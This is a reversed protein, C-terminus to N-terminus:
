CGFCDDDDTSAFNAFVRSRIRDADGLNYLGGGVGEGGAKGGRAANRFVLSRALELEGSEDNFIGGGLGDGGEGGVASNGFVLAREVDVSIPGGFISGRSAVAIGGGLGDDGDGGVAWNHAVISRSLQGTVPGVLGFFYVGGGVGPGSDGGVARNHTILAGSVDASGQYVLIGGGVAANPAHAPPVPIDELSSNENGGVARNTTVKTQEIVVSASRLGALATVTGSTVGGGAGTGAGIDGENGDGGIAANGRVVSRSLRLDGDNYIGGGNGVGAFTGENNDGAEAWNGILKTGSVAAEAINHLGGGVALGPFTAAGSLLLNPGVGDDAGSASNERLTSAHLDLTGLNSIGGGLSAGTFVYGPVFDILVDTVGVARNGVFGGGRVSLEGENYIGGGMGGYAVNDRFSDSRSVVTATGPFVGALEVADSGFGGGRGAAAPAGGGGRATNSVFRNRATTVEAGGNAGVGGGTGRGGAADPGGAGGHVANSDFLNGVLSADTGSVLQIAGGSALGGAAGDSAGDGALAENGVFRSNAVRLSSEAVGFPSVDGSLIAGGFAPGGSTAGEGGAGSMVANGEFRSHSVSMAGTVNLVAGGAALGTFAEGEIYGLASKATNDVFSSHRVQVDPPATLGGTTPGLDSTIAGGVGVVIGSSVNGEFHGRTVSLTGGFENAVAGGATIVNVATNDVFDVRDLRVDGGMNYLGGGFAFVATAPDTPDFGLADTALGDRVTLGRITVDPSSAIEEPTPTEFPADVLAEPLVAFVRTEGMGSVALRGAGPGRITVDDTIKLQSELEITGQLEQAFRIVDPGVNANADLIAQRLTGAGADDLSSVTIAALLNRPELPDLRPRYSTRRGSRVRHRSKLFRRSQPRPMTTSRDHSM